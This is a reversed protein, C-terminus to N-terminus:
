LQTQLVHENFGTVESIWPDMFRHITKVDRGRTWAGNRAVIEQFRASGAHRERGRCDTFFGHSCDECVHINYDMWGAMWGDLWGTWSRM